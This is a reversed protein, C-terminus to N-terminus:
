REAGIQYGGKKYFREFTSQEAVLREYKAITEQKSCRHTVPADHYDQAAFKDAVKKDDFWRTDPGDAGWVRYKVSYFTKM